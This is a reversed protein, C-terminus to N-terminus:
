PTAVGDAAAQAKLMDRRQLVRKDRPNKELFTTYLKVAEGLYGDSIHLDALAHVYTSNRPELSMAKTFDAIAGERDEQDVAHLAVAYRVLPNEPHAEALPAIELTAEALKDPTRRGKVMAMLASMGAAAEAAAQKDDAEGAMESRKGALRAGINFQQRASLYYKHKVALKGVELYAEWGSKNDVIDQFMYSRSRQGARYYLVEAMSQAADKNSPAAAISRELSDVEAPTNKLHKYALGIKYYIESDKGPNMGVISSWTDIAQQFNEVGYDYQGSAIIQDIADPNKRVAEVLAEQAYADLGLKRYVDALAKYAAGMNEWGAGVEAEAMEIAGMYLAGADKYQDGYFMANAFAFMADYMTGQDDAQVPFQKMLTSADVGFVNARARAAADRKASAPRDRRRVNDRIQERLGTDSMTANTVPTPVPAGAALLAQRALEVVPAATESPDAGYDRVVRQREAIAEAKKGLQDLLRARTEIAALANASDSHLQSFAGYTEQAAELNGAREHSKAMMLQADGAKASNPSAQVVGNFAAAAPGYEEARFRALGIEYGAALGEASEPAANVISQYTALGAAQDGLNTIQIEAIALQAQWADPTGPKEAVVQEYTALADTYQGAAALAAGQGSAGACGVWFSLAVTLLGVGGFKAAIPWYRKVTRGGALALHKSM